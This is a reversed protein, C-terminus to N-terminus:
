KKQKKDRDTDKVIIKDSNKKPEVYFPTISFDMSKKLHNKDNFTQKRMIFSNKDTKKDYGFKEAVSSRHKYKDSNRCKNLLELKPLEVASYRYMDKVSKVPSM